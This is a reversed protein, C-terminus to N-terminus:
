HDFSVQFLKLCHITSRTVPIFSPMMLPQSFKFCPVTLIKLLKTCPALFAHFLRLLLTLSVTSFTFCVKLSIRWISKNSIPLFIIWPNTLPIPEIIPATFLFILSTAPLILSFILPAKPM